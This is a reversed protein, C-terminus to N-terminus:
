FIIKGSLQMSRPNSSFAAAANNFGPSSVLVFNRNTGSTSTLSNVQNISGPLYQPHNLVNFAQAGIEIKYREGFSIRKYASLDFDNTRGTPLTERAGNPLTGLGGQVYYANSPTFLFTSSTPRTIAGEAYGIIQATCALGGTTTGNVLAATSSPLTKTTSGSPVVCSLSPNYLPAVVSATNKVGAGNIFARDPASDGNLNSDVGSQVTTFQPSQFTYIPTIEWNGLINKELWNSTKFFPLDYVAEITIRHARSLASLGYDAAVNQSDQPRRPNLATTNFDATANDMTKSWTWAANILLGHQFRRTLQTQLGNYDSGGYPQDATISSTFGAALFAPLIASQSTLSYQTSPGATVSTSGGFATPLATAQTVPSYKDIQDQVDLHVGRTGVYRVEATYDKLFVHEIGLTYQESYPLKQNPVFATTAARQAAVTTFSFTGPLGGSGLFNPTNVALSPVNLTSQFQPPAETTGINDYLVDYGIGFGGRITTNEDPAFNFGIRPAFNKYQPTPKAFTILGPVSALTNLAQLKESAPVSTFEWRLGLNLTFTPTVRWDDNGYAYINAQDGYFTPTGIAGLANRQGILNPSYDNLYLSLSSYEYDGRARQVFLQPAIAKRGEVGVVITHKGKVWTLSEIAQYLNEITGQPANPDPGLTINVDQFYLNPFASLGPFPGGSVPTQNFYRNFGLRFDNSLNPSFIHEENILALHFRNPRPAFFVPFTASQDLNDARNYVYRVHLSDKSSITYDGSSTSYTSNSFAPNTVSVDGVPVNTTVGAVNNVAITVPCNADSATAQSAAIPTYQKYVSFNTTNPLAVGGTTSGFTMASLTTLGAATPACFVSSSGTQGLEEREFNSFLFLKEKLIPGGLQGGYRNFDYRPQFKHSVGNAVNALYQQHDVANLNRNDFYEYARGHVHNTGTAILQNFQGGTSHGYQAGFVNQLLVFEGVADNPVFLLPGTVSKSNNDVGDIEFNNNRPRQGGVSPGTGAGLGGSTSVGPTLLSLNLVGLGVTATPLDQTEKDVFTTGLQSTTTDISVSAESTVEVNSSATVALTVDATQDRNAAVMLHSVTAAAFGPSVVKLSYSGLPLNSIRYEGSDNSKGEYTVGTAENVAEVPANTVVAGAPDHVIGVLTGTTVQGWAVTGAVLVLALLAVNRVFKMM